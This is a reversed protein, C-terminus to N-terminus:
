VRAHMRSACPLFSYKCGIGAVLASASFARLKASVKAFSVDIPALPSARGLGEGLKAASAERASSTDGELGIARLREGLAAIDDADGRTMAFAAVQPAASTSGDQSNRGDAAWTVRNRPLGPGGTGQGSPKADVICDGRRTGRMASKRAQLAAGTAPFDEADDRPGESVRTHREPAPTLFSVAKAADEREQGARMQGLRGKRRATRPASPPVVPSSCQVTEVTGPPELAVTGSQFPTAVPVAGVRGARSTRAPVGAPKSPPLNSGPDAESRRARFPTHPQAAFPLNTSDSLVGDGGFLFKSASAKASSSPVRKAAREEFM